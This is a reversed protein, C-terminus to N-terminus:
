RCSRKIANQLTLINYQSETITEGKENVWVLADTKNTTEVYVLVGDHRKKLKM